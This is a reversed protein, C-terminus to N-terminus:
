EEIRITSNYKGDKFYIGDMKIKFGKKILDNVMNPINTEKFAFVKWQFESNEYEMEKLYVKNKNMVKTIDTMELSKPIYGYKFEYITKIFNKAFSINKKYEMNEKLIQKEKKKNKELLQTLKANEIILNHIEKQLSQNKKHYNFGNIYLYLPYIGFVFIALFVLLLLRGSPRYFLTPKRLYLSFNYGQENKVYANHAEIMGLFLFPNVALRDLNYEEYFDFGFADIGISEQIYDRLGEINGYESTVYIREIQGINYKSDIKEIQSNIINILSLFEKQLENLVIKEMNTYKLPNVGKKTLLKEFVNINFNKIKMKELAEYIKDLGGSITVISLLEGENYFTLFVKDYLFVVFLDNAKKIINEEYLAKYAFAPFSIYDIYGTKEIIDKYSHKIYSEPVIIAEITVIKEDKVSDIIKYKILYKETESVGAEEYVKTEVFNDIDVKEIVNKEIEFSYFIAQEIPIYCSLIAKSKLDGRYIRILKRKPYLVFKENDKIGIVEDTTYDFKKFFSPKLKNLITLKM